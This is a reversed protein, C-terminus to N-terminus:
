KGKLIREMEFIRNRYVIASQFDLEKAASEMKKRLEDINAEVEKQTLNYDEQNDAVSAIDINYTLDYDKVRVPPKADIPAGFLSLNNSKSIQSPTIGHEINYNMQRERRENTDAITQLMSKTMKDAFMIVRGKINRAARGATQTMSRASRLFGEKDADMIIVLAVEPIDLGERLLNVGVLVDFLGDKYQNILEVREMNDIDSHIYRCKISVRSLYKQLEEAMRKTLTTIMTRSGDELCKHIEEIVRDIQNDTKVVEIEPDLLGTPRIFQEVVFGESKNLEYDAPTASVFVTKGMMNELEEFKLPRNDMASPLRFGYDVLNRKRSYDGGYMARTQPITVHSEDIFLLYDSPFYDMLCFPRSGPSRGDFYLSYNEIGSCYGVEKIMEIDSEVRHKLRKAHFSENNAELKNLQIDLDDQIKSIADSIRQRTTVFISAPHISVEEVSELVKKTNPDIKDISEVEDDLFQVKYCVDDYAVYIYVADGQVKFTGRKTDLDSRVYLGDSLKLLLKNREIRHGIRITVTNDHFDAPNGIGYMCSVSSVVIVDRRGSLLTSSASLRHKEIEDNISLDKEIYTNTSPLYAEPQYYDYYSVFYEVANEPFFAKFEAYLQAALTKNHCLILTPTDLNEIVNAMTFTKGSGTVGWLVVKDSEEQSLTQVLEAIAQPQDGTPAFNSVLKFSM